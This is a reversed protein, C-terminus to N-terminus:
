TQEGSPNSQVPDMPKLGCLDELVSFWYAMKHKGSISSSGSLITTISASREKTIARSEYMRSIFTGIELNARQMLNYCRSVSQKLTAQDNFERRFDSLLELIAQRDEDYHQSKQRRTALVDGITALGRTAVPPTTVAQTSGQEEIAAENKQEDNASAERINSLNNKNLFSQNKNTDLAVTVTPSSVPPETQVMDLSRSMTPTSAPATAQAPKKRRQKEQKQEDFIGLNAIPMVRYGNHAWRGRETRQGDVVLLVPKGQFRFRALSKIRENAMQRSCGLAKALETQSPFCYGDADMYTALACLTKWDRDSIAALLGSTRAAVYMKLFLRETRQGSLLDFETQSEVTVLQEIEPRPTPDSDQDHLAKTM